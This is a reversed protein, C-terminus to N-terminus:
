IVKSVSGLHLLLVKRVYPLIERQFWAKHNYPTDALPDASIANILARLCNQGQGPGQSLKTLLETLNDIVLWEFEDKTLLSLVQIAREILESRSIPPGGSNTRDSCIVVFGFRLPQGVALESLKELWGPLNVHWRVLSIGLM